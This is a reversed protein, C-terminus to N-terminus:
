CYDVRKMPTSSANNSSREVRQRSKCCGFNVRFAYGLLVITPISFVCFPAIYGFQLTAIQFRAEWYQSGAICHVVFNSCFSSIEIFVRGRSARRARRRHPGHSSDAARYM